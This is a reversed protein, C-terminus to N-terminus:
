YLLKSYKVNIAKRHDTWEKCFSFYFLTININGLIFTTKSQVVNMLLECETIVMYSRNISSVYKGKVSYQLLYYISCGCIAEMILM